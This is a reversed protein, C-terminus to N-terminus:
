TCTTLTPHEWCEVVKGVVVGQLGGKISEVKELAEVELGIDTLITAVEAASLDIDIYKKLWNLSIEMIYRKVNRTKQQLTTEKKPVGIRAEM